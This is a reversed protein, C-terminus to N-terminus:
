RRRDSCSRRRFARACSRSYGYRRRPSRGPSSSGSSTGFPRIASRAAGSWSARWSGPWTTARRSSSRGRMRSAPRCSSEDRLTAGLERALRQTGAGLRAPEASGCSQCVEPAPESWGCPHCRPRGDGHLVLSVDCSGCRPTRGCARCHLALAVGRCNLLLIAKGGGAAVADLEALLPASLPYGAERRLDVVRVPPLEGGLRGGLELRELREWSEP